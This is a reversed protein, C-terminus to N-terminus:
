ADVFAPNIPNVRETATSDDRGTFPVLIRALATTGPYISVFISSPINMRKGFKRVIGM